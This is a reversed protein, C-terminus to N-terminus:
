DADPYVRKGALWTEIVRTSWIDEVPIEFYDRDILIFDAWKGPELSGLTQEQHAAFAADLTFATLAQSRTMRQGPYWGESPQGKLDRRTVAAYLGHFPNPHEVPFDSGAAIIVGLDLLSRWAYAGLIREAGIRDEAMNMDSTAHTPQMSAILGLRAFRELDGPAVVQAHEIRHRLGAGHRAQVLEFADLVARNGRDGIAHVNVQFGRAAARSMMAVLTKADEFLLGSHEPEDRYPALLAAGGSGLAGDIYLKVSRITLRETKPDLDPRTFATLNEGVGSLMAYITVNLAERDALQRYLAITRLDVGADHVGTLGLRSLEDLAVRLAAEDESDTAAPLVREMLDMAADVLIGTPRGGRDREIRGGAPAATRAGIGALRLAESNAWGAHGDIRELWVPRDSIVADLATATPFTRVPWLVQNWGHGLVWYRDPNREAYDAIKALAAGQSRAGVLDARQLRAQGLALVHGHADILGPLVTAGNGDVERVDGPNRDLAVVHGQDMLLSAFRRWEGDQLSYGNINHLLVPEATCVIAITSLTSAALWFATYKMTRRLLMAM